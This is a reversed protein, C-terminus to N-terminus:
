KEAEDHKLVRCFCVWGLGCDREKDAREGRDKKKKKRKKIPTHEVRDVVGLM